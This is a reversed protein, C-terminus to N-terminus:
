GQTALQASLKSEPYISDRAQIPGLGSSAHLPLKSTNMVAVTYKTIDADALPRIVGPILRLAAARRSSHRM